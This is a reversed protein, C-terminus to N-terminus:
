DEAEVRIVTAEQFRPLLREQQEDL